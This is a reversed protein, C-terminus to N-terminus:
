KNNMRKKQVISKFAKPTLGVTKKFQSSLHSVSSYNLLYSIETLTLNQNVYYAKALEIKRLIVYHEISIQATESFVASLYSYHHNLKENLYVSIRKSHFSNQDTMWEQILEKMRETLIEKPNDIFDFGFGSLESILQAVKEKCVTEDLQIEHNGIRKIDLHSENLKATLFTQVLKSFNAHFYLRM